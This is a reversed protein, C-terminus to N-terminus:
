ASHICKSIDLPIAIFYKHVTNKSVGLAVSIARISFGSEHMSKIKCIMPLGRM